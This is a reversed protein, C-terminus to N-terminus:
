KLCVFMRKGLPVNSKLTFTSSSTAEATINQGDNTLMTLEAQLNATNYSGLTTLSTFGDKILVDFGNGAYVAVLKVAPVGIKLGGSTLGKAIDANWEFRLLGDHNNM